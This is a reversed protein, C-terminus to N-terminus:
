EDIFHFHLILDKLNRGAKVNTFLPKRKFDSPFSSLYLLEFNIGFRFEQKNTKKARLYTDANM